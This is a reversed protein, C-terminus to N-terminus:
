AMRKPGHENYLHILHTVWSPHRELVVAIESHRKGRIKLLLALWRRMEVPDNASQVCDAIEEETLHPALKLSAPM